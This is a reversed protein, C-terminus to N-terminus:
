SASDGTAIGTRARRLFETYKMGSATVVTWQALVLGAAMYLVAAHWDLPTALHHGVVYTMSYISIPLLVLLATALGPSYPRGLHFVRIIATHGVAELVGLLMPALLLFAVRPFLLPVAAIWLVYVMTLAEGFEKSKATFGIRSAIMETFGGPFRTEEWVHATVGIFFLAVMRQPVPMSAWNIATYIVVAVAAATAGYLSNKALYNLM